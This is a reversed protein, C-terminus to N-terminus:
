NGRRFQEKIIRINLGVDSLKNPSKVNYGLRTVTSVDVILYLVPQFLTQCFQSGLQVVSKVIVAMETGSKQCPSLFQSLINFNVTWVFCLLLIGIFLNFFHYLIILPRNFPSQLGGRLLVSVSFHNFNLLSYARIILIFPHLFLQLRLSVDEVEQNTGVVIIFELVAVTESAVTIKYLSISGVDIM